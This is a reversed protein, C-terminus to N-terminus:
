SLIGLEKFQDKAQALFEDGHLTTKWKKIYDTYKTSATSSDWKSTVYSYEFAVMPTNVWGSFLININQSQTSSGGGGQDGNCAVFGVSLLICLFLTLLKKM